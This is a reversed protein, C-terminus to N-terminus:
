KHDPIHDISERVYNAWDLEQKLYSILENIWRKVPDSYFYEQIAIHQKDGIKCGGLSTLQHYLVEIEKFAETFGWVEFIFAAQGNEMTYVVAAVLYQKVKNGYIDKNNPFRTNIREHISTIFPIIKGFKDKGILVTEASIPLFSIRGDTTFGVVTGGEEGENFFLFPTNSKPNLPLVHLSPDFQKESM